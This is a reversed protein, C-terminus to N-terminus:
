LWVPRGSSLNAAVQARYVSAELSWRASGSRDSSFDAPKALPDTSKALTFGVIHEALEPPPALVRFEPRPKCSLKRRAAPAQQVSSAPVDRGGSNFLDSNEPISCVTVTSSRCMYYRNPPLFSIVEKSPGTNEGTDKEEDLRLPDLSPNQNALRCCRLYEQFLRVHERRKAEKATARKAGFVPNENEEPGPKRQSAWDQRALNDLHFYIGQSM